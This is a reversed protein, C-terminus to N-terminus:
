AHLVHKCLAEWKLNSAEVGGAVCGEVGVKFEEDSHDSSVFVVEVNKNAAKLAKYTEALM